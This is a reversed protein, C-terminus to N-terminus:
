RALASSSKAVGAGFLRQLRDWLEDGPVRNGKELLAIYGPTVGAQRALTRQSWGLRTRNERITEAFSSTMPTLDYGRPPEFLDIPTM